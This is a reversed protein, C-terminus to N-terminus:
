ACVIQTVRFRGYVLLARTRADVRARGIAAGGAAGRAPGLPGAGRRRGGRARGLRRPGPRRTCTRGENKQIKFEHRM